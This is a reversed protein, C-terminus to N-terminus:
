NYSLNLEIKEKDGKIEGIQLVFNEDTENVPFAVRTAKTSIAQVEVPDNHIDAALWEEENGNVSLRVYDRSKVEIGKDFNNKIKLNLVLFTRGQISGVKRGQVVIENRLEADGIHYNFSSVEEGDSGRLPYEMERNVETLAIAGEINVRNNEAGNVSSTGGGLVQSLGVIILILFVAVGAAHYKSKQSFSYIQGLFNTSFEKATM